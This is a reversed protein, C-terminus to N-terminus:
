RRSVTSKSNTAEPPAGAALDFAYLHEDESGVYVVGNAVAPSSAVENATPYNWLDSGSEANLAYVNGDSSGVYVVGNAVAPSSGVDAGTPFSWLKSGNSSKLAYLSDDNSGVYVVGNAVAPSSAIENDTTFSWIESGTIANIAKLKGNYSGVYVVGGVVAPSSDVPESTAYRWVEAGTTADLAYIYDDFSGFYVMGDAVAPSSEILQGTTFSWIEAGTSANIAYVKDDDSGVYVVGGVVAPSSDVAGGAAFRWAADMGSVNSTYLVNEFPNSRSHNAVRGLQGWNTAVDFPQEAADGSRRGVATVWYIGPRASAAVTFSVPGFAGASTTAAVVEDTADFYVDVAENPAFGGGSVSIATTPPGDGASLHIGPEVTFETASTTSGGLTTIDVRGTRASQPVTAKLSSASIFTCASAAIGDFKVTMGKCSSGSGVFATGKITVITGFAGTTPGFSTIAPVQASAVGALPFVLLGLVVGLAVLPRRSIRALRKAEM